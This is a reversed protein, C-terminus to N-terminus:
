RGRRLTVALVGGDVGEELMRSALKVGTFPPVPWLGDYIDRVLRPSAHSSIPGSCRPRLQGNRAHSRAHSRIKLCYISRPIGKMYSANERGPPQQGIRFSLICSYPCLVQLGTGSLCRLAPSVSSAASWIGGSWTALCHGLLLVRQRTCFGLAIKQLCWLSTEVSGTMGGSSTFAAPSPHGTM